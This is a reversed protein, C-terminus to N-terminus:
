LIKFCIGLTMDQLVGAQMKLLSNHFRLWWTTELGIVVLLTKIDGTLGYECNGQVRLGRDGSTQIVFDM